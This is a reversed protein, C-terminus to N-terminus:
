QLQYRHLLGFFRVFRFSNIHKVRDSIWAPFVLLVDAFAVTYHLAKVGTPYSTCNKLKM